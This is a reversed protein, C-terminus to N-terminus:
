YNNNIRTVQNSGLSDYTGVPTKMCGLVPDTQSVKPSAEAGHTLGVAHGFEHCFLGYTSGPEVTIHHQDCEYSLTEPDDCIAMGNADGSVTAEQVYWDTEGSGSFTPTSDYHFSLDTPRYDNDIVYNAKSKDDSELANTGGSDFYFYVSANDTKCVVDSSCYHDYNATPVLNDTSSVAFAVAPGVMFLGAVTATVWISRKSM